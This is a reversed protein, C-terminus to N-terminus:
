RRVVLTHAARDGLRQCKPPSFAFLAGVLYFLFGDILRFLNRVVAPGFGVHEGAEDVVRIGVLRKGLTMGTLAEAFVYYALVLVIIM